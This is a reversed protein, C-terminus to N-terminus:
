PEGKLEKKELLQSLYEVGFTEEILKKRMNNESITLSVYNTFGPMQKPCIIRPYDLKSYHNETLNTLQTHTYDGCGCEGCVFSKAYFKSEQRSECPPINLEESGHCCIDRIDRIEESIKANKFGRSLQADAFQWASTFKRGFYNEMM